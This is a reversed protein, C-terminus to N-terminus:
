FVFNTAKNTIYFFKNLEYPTLELFKTFFLNLKIIFQFLIAWHRVFKFIGHLAIYLNKLM